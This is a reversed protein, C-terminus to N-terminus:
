CGDDIVCAGYEKEVTGTKPDIVLLVDEFWINALVRGRWFEIENLEKAPTGDMRNVVIKRKEAMTAPDWFHLYESGDTVILEEECRDWTIGWGENRTTHFTFEDITELSTANYVFGKQKKWTIQVLNGKYFTMGEGFLKPDMDLSKKVEITTPDLVRVTSHGYLGTSEWLRGHYFTLGQSYIILTLLFITSVHFQTLASIRYPHFFFLLDWGDVVTVYTFAKPDHDMQDVVEYMKGDTKTVAAELWDSYKTLDPCRHRNAHDDGNGNGSHTNTNGGNGNHNNNNNQNANHNNNNAQGGHGSNKGLAGPHQKGHNKEPYPVGPHAKNWQAVKQADPQGHQAANQNGFPNKEGHSQWWNASAHGNKQDEAQEFAEQAKASDFNDGVIGGEADYKEILADEDSSYVGGIVYVAGVALLGMMVLAFCRNQTRVQRDAWAFPEPEPVVDDDVFDDISPMENDAGRENMEIGSDM